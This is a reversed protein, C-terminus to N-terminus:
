YHHDPIRSHPSAEQVASTLYARALSFYSFLLLFVFPFLM